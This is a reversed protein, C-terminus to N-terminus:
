AEARLPHPYPYPTYYAAWTNTAVARYLVNEDEAFYGVGAVCNVPRNARPGRGVGVTGNFGAVEPYYDRNAQILDTGTVLGYYNTGTLSNNWLYFPESAQNPWAASARNILAGQGRGVQDLAPWGNPLQNGDWLNDGDTPGFFNSPQGTANFHVFSIGQGIENTTVMQNNFIVGTGGRVFMAFAALISHSFTNNYIEMVRVARREGSGNEIGHSGIFQNILTNHRIVVRCGAQGDFFGAQAGSLDESTCDEIYLKEGNGLASPQAWSNDGNTAIGGWDPTEYIVFQKFSSTHDCNAIVGYIDGLIRFAVTTAGDFDISDLIINKTNGEVRIHGPQLSNTDTALGAITVGGKIRVRKPAAATIYILSATGGSTNKTVNDTIRLAAKGPFELSIGKSVLLPSSWTVSGSGAPVIVRDRDSASDIAAQVDARSNSAANIASGTWYTSGGSPKDGAPWASWRKGDSSPAISWSRAVANKAAM